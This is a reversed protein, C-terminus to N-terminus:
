RVGCLRCDAPTIKGQGSNPKRGVIDRYRGRFEIANNTVLIWDNEAVVKLLDWDKETGLGLHNVHM